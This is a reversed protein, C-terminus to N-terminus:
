SSSGFGRGYILRPWFVPSIFQVIYINSTIGFIKLCNGTGTGYSALGAFEFNLKWTGIGTKGPPKECHPDSVSFWTHLKGLTSPTSQMMKVFLKSFIEDAYSFIFHCFYIGLLNKCQKSYKFYLFCFLCYQLNSCPLIFLFCTFAAVKREFHTRLKFVSWFNDHKVEQSKKSVTATMENWGKGSKSLDVSDRLLTMADIEAFITVVWLIVGMM